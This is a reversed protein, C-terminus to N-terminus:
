LHRRYVGRTPQDWGRAKRRRARVLAEYGDVIGVSRAKVAQSFCRPRLPCAACDRARLWTLDLVADVQKLIHDDPILDRLPGAVFLDEQWRDQQGVM